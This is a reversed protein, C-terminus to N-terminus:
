NRYDSIYLEYTGEDIVIDTPNSGVWSKGQSSVVIPEKIVYYTNKDTDTGDRYIRMGVPSGNHIFQYTLGPFPHYGMLNTGYIYFTFEYKGNSLKEYVFRVFNVKVSAYVNSGSYSLYNRFPPMVIKAKGINISEGSKLETEYWEYEKHRSFKQGNKLTVTFAINGAGTLLKPKKKLSFSVDCCYYSKDWEPVYVNKFNSKKFKVTDTSLIKGKKNMYFIKCKGGCSALKGGKKLVFSLHGFQSMDDHTDVYIERKSISYGKVKVKCKYNKKGAKAIITTRGKSLAKVRGSKSVKAISKNKSIWKVKGSYNRIKLKVTKGIFITKKSHNIKISSDANVSYAACICCVFVTLVVILKKM